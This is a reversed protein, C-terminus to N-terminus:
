PSVALRRVRMPLAMQPSPRLWYYCWRDNDLSESNRHEEDIPALKQKGEWMSGITSLNVRESLWKVCSNRTMTPSSEIEIEDNWNHWEIVAEMFRTALLSM